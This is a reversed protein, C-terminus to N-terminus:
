ATPEPPTLTAYTSIIYRDIKDPCLQGRHVHTYSTPWMVARGTQAPITKNQTLFQTGTKHNTLYILISAIRLSHEVGHDCHWHSFAHGPPFHKFRPNSFHWHDKFMDVAPYHKRYEQVLIEIEKEILQYDFDYFFYDGVKSYNNKTKNKFKKIFNKCAPATFLKDKVHMFDAQAMVTNLGV